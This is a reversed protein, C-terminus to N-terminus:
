SANGGGIPSRLMLSPSTLQVSPSSLMVPPSSLMLSPSTLAHPNHSNNSNHNNASSNSRSTSLYSPGLIRRRGNIMWNSVQSMSLGTANCMQKKELESPYPHASHATSGRRSSTPRRAPHAPRSEELPIAAVMAPVPTAPPPPPPPAHQDSMPPPGWEPRESYAPCPSSSPQKNNSSTSSRHIRTGQTTAGEQHWPHAPDPHHHPPPGEPYSPHAWPPLRPAACNPHSITTLAAGGRHPSPQHHKLLAIAQGPPRNKERDDDKHPEAPFFPQADEKKAEPKEDQYGEDDKSQEPQNRPNRRGRQEM